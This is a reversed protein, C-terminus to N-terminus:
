TSPLGFLRQVEVPETGPQALAVGISLTVAVAHGDITMPQAVGARIQMGARRSPGLLEQFSVATVQELEIRHEAPHLDGHLPQYVGAAGVEVVFHMRCKLCHGRSRQRLLIQLEWDHVGNLVPLIENFPRHRCQPRGDLLDACGPRRGVFPKLSGNWLSTGANLRHCRSVRPLEPLM